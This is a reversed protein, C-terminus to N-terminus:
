LLLIRLHITQKLLLIQVRLLTMLLTFYSGTNEKFINFSVKFRKDINHNVQENDSAPIIEETVNKYTFIDTNSPDFTFALLKEANSADETTFKYSHGTILQLKPEKVYVESSGINAAQLLQM